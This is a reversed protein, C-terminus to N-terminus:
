ACRNTMRLAAFSRARLIWLFGVGLVLPSIGGGKPREPHCVFSIASCGQSLASDFGLDKANSLVVSVTTMRLAAFSRPNSDPLVLFALILVSIRRATFCGEPHCGQKNDQACRNTMRLAAIACCGRLPLIEPKVDSLVLPCIGGGKPREPHCVFSIASREKSLASDFDLDKANSLVVSVVTM